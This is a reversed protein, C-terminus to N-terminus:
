GPDAVADIGDTEFEASAEKAGGKAAQEAAALWRNRAAQLLSQQPSKVGITVRGDRVM